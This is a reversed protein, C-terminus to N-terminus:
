RSGDDERVRRKESGEGALRRSGIRAAEGRCLVFCRLCCHRTEEVGDRCGGGQEHADRGGNVALGM